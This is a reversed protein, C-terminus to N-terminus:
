QHRARQSSGPQPASATAGAGSGAGEGVLLADTEAEAMTRQAPPAHPLQQRQVTGVARM